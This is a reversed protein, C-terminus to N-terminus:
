GLQWSSASLLGLQTIIQAINNVFARNVLHIDHVWATDYSAAPSMSNMSSPQGM